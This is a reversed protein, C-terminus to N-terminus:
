VSSSASSCLSVCRSSLLLPPSSVRSSLSDAAATTGERGRGRERERAHSSVQPHPNWSTAQFHSASPRTSCCIRDLEVEAQKGRLVRRRERRSPSSRARHEERWQPEDERAIRSARGRAPWCDLEHRASPGAAPRGRALPHVRVPLPSWRVAVLICAPRLVAGRPSLCAQREAHLSGSEAPQDIDLADTV